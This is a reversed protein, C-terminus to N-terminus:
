NSKVYSAKLKYNDLSKLQASVSAEWEKQKQTDLSHKTEADYRNEEATCEGAVRKYIADLEQESANHRFSYGELEQRLKRAYVEALDFHCQEHRLVYLSNTKTWSGNKNFYCKVDANFENEIITYQFSIGWDTISSFDSGEEPKGQFDSWSLLSNHNWYIRTENNAEPKFAMFLLLILIYRM